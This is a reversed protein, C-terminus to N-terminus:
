SNAEPSSQRLDERLEETLQESLEPRGHFAAPTNRFLAIRWAGHDRTAVLTQVANVAPSIDHQGPPVM